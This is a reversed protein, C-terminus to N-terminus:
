NENLLDTCTQLATNVINRDHDDLDDVNTDVIDGEVPQIILMNTDTTYTVYQLETVQSECYTIFNDLNVRDDGTLNSVYRPITPVSDNTPLIMLVTDTHRYVIQKFTEM